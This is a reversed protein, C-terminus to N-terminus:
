FNVASSSLRHCTMTGNCISIDCICFHILFCGSSIRHRALNVLKAVTHVLLNGGQCLASYFFKHCLLHMPLPMNELYLLTWREDFIFIVKKIVFWVYFIKKNLLKKSFLLIKQSFESFVTKPVCKVIKKSFPPM